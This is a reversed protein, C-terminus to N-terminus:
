VMPLCDDLCRAKRQLTAMTSPLTQCWAQVRFFNWRPEMGWLGEVKFNSKGNCKMRLDRFSNELSTNLHHGHLFEGFHQNSTM